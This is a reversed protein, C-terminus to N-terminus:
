FTIVVIIWIIWTCHKMVFINVIHNKREKFLSFQSQHERKVIHSILHFMDYPTIYVSNYLIIPRNVYAQCMRLVVSYLTAM